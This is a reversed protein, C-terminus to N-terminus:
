NMWKDFWMQFVLINWLKNIEQKPRNKFSKRLYQIYSANFIGQEELKKVDLFNDVKAQLENNLWYDVPVGFGMKPRDILDKHIYKYLIQRLIFKSSRKDHNPLKYSIPMNLAMNIIDHDLLPERAELSNSMSARDVKVHIDDTHYTMLDLALMKNIDNFGGMEEWVSAQPLILPNFHNKFLLRM